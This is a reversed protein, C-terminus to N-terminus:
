SRKQYGQINFHVGNQRPIVDILQYVDQWIGECETCRMEQFAKGADVEIFGGDISEAGCYPCTVGRANIHAKSDVMRKRAEKRRVTHEM